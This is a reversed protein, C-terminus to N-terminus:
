HIEGLQPARSQTCCESDLGKFKAARTLRWLFRHYASTQPQFAILMATQFIQYKFDPLEGGRVLEEDELVM